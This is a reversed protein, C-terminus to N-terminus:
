AGLTLARLRSASGVDAGNPSSARDGGRSTDAGASPRSQDRAARRRGHGRGAACGRPSSARRHRRRPDGPRRPAPLDTARVVPLPEPERGSRGDRRMAAVPPASSGGSAGAAPEFGVARRDGGVGSRNASSEGLAAVLPDLGDRVLIAGDVVLLEGEGLDPLHPPAARTRAIGRVPRALQEVSGSVLRAEPDVARWLDLVSTM